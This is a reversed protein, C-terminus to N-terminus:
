EGSQSSDIYRNCNELSKNCTDLEDWCVDNYMFAEEMITECSAINKNNSEIQKELEKIRMKLPKQVTIVLVTICLVSMLSLILKTKM